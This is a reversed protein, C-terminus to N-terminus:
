FPLDDETFASNEAAGYGYFGTDNPQEYRTPTVQEPVRETPEAKIQNLILNYSLRRSGDKGTYANSSIRGEVFVLAGEAIESLAKKTYDTWASVEFHDKVMGNKGNRECEIFVSLYSSGSATRGESKKLLKGVLEFKNVEIM